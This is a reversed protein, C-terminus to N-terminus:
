VAFQHSKVKFEMSSVEANLFGLTCIWIGMIRLSNIKLGTARFSLGSDRLRLQKVAASM